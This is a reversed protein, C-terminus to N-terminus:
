LLLSLMLIMILRVIVLYTVAEILGVEYEVVVVVVM